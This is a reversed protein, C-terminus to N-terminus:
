LLGTLKWVQACLWTSFISVSYCFLLVVASCLVVFPPNKCSQAVCCRAVVVLSLHATTLSM